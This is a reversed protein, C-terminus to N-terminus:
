PVVPLGHREEGTSIGTPFKVTPSPDIVSSRSRSLRPRPATSVVRYRQWGQLDDALGTTKTEGRIRSRSPIMRQWNERDLAGHTASAIRGRLGIERYWGGATRERRVTQKSVVYHYNM